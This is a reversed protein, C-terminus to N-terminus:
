VYIVSLCGDFVMRLDFHEFMVNVLEHKCGQLPLLVLIGRLARTLSFSSSILKDSLDISENLLILYIQVYIINYYKEKINKNLKTKTTRQVNEQKLNLSKNKKEKKKATLKVLILTNVRLWLLILLIHM